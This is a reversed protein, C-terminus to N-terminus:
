CSGPQLVERVPGASGDSSIEIIRVRPKFGPSGVTVAYTGPNVAVALRGDQDTWAKVLPNKPYSQRSYVRVEAHAIVGGSADQVVMELKRLVDPPASGILPLPPLTEALTLAFVSIEPNTDKSVALCLYAESNDEGVATVCNTGAPLDKLMATGNSDTVFSRFGQGNPLTVSLKVGEQPKEDRLVTINANRFSPTPDRIVTVCESSASICCGLVMAVAALTKM